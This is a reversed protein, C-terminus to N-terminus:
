LHPSPRRLLYQSSSPRSPDGGTVSPSLWSALFLSTFSLLLDPPRVWEGATQIRYSGEIRELLFRDATMGQRINEDEKGKRKTKLTLSRLFGKGASALPHVYIMTMTLSLAGVMTSLPPSDFGADGDGLQDLLPRSFQCVFKGPPARPNQALQHPFPIDVTTEALIKKRQKIETLSVKRRLDKPLVVSGPDIRFDYYRRVEERVQVIRASTVGFGLVKRHKPASYSLLVSGLVLHEISLFPDNFTSPGSLAVGAETEARPPAKSKGKRSTSLTPDYPAHAPPIAFQASLDGQTLTCEPGSISLVLHSLSVEFDWSSSFTRKGSGRVVTLFTEWHSLVKTEKPGIQATPGAKSTM